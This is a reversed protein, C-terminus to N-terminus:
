VIAFNASDNQTIFLEAKLPKAHTKSNEWFGHCVRMEAAQGCVNLMIVAIILRLAMWNFVLM